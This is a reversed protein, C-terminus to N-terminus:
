ACCSWITVQRTVRPTEQDDLSFSRQKSYTKPTYTKYRITRSTLEQREELFLVYVTLGWQFIMEMLTLPLSVYFVLPTPRLSVSPIFCLDGATAPAAYGRTVPSFSKDSALEFPQENQYSGFLSCFTLLFFFFIIQPYICSYMYLPIQYPNTYINYLCTYM